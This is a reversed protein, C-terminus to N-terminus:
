RSCNWPLRQDSLHSTSEGSRSGRRRQVKGCNQSGTGSDKQSDNSLKSSAYKAPLLTSPSRSRARCPFATGAEFLVGSHLLKLTRGRPKDLFTASLERGRKWPLLSSTQPRQKYRRLLYYFMSRSLQLQRTAEEILTISLKGMSALPRIVAERELALQWEERNAAESQRWKQM